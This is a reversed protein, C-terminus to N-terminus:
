IIHIVNEQWYGRCHELDHCALMGVWSLKCLMRELCIEFGSYSKLCRQSVWHDFWLVPLWPRRFDSELEALSMGQSRTCTESDSLSRSFSLAICLCPLWKAGQGYYSTVMCCGMLVVNLSVQGWIQKKRLWMKFSTLLPSTNEPNGLYGSSNKGSWVSPNTIIPVLWALFLLSGGM